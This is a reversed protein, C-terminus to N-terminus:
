AAVRGLVLRAVEESRAPRLRVGAGLYEAGALRPDLKLTKALIDRTTEPRPRTEWDGEEATGGFDVGCCNVVAEAEPEDLRELTRIEREGGLDRFRRDLWDLYAPAGPARALQAFHELLRGACTLGSM